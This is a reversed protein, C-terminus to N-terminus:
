PAPGRDRQASRMGDLQLKAVAGKVPGMDASGSHLGAVKTVISRMLDLRFRPQGVLVRGTGM